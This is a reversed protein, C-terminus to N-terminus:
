GNLRNWKKAKNAAKEREYLSAKRRFDVKNFHDMEHQIRAATLGTFNQTLSHGDPTTFRVSIIDNRKIKLVAAPWSACSEAFLKEEGLYAVIKPNFLVHCLPDGNLVMVQFPIGLEMANLSLKRTAKVAKSLLEALEMSSLEETAVFRRPPELALVQDITLIETM